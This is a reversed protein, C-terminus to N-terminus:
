WSKSWCRMLSVSISIWIHCQTHLQPVTAIHMNKQSSNKYRVLPAVLTACGHPSKALVPNTYNLLMRLWGQVCLQMSTNQTDLIWSVIMYLDRHDEIIQIGFHVFKLSLPHHWSALSFNLDQMWIMWRLSEPSAVFISIRRASGGSPTTPPATHWWRASSRWEGPARPASSVLKTVVKIPLYQYGESFEPVIVM